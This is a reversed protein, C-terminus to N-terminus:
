VTVGVPKEATVTDIWWKQLNRAMRCKVEKQRELVGDVEHDLSLM